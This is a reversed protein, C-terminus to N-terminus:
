QFHSTVVLFFYMRATSTASTRTLRLDTIQKPGQPHALASRLLVVGNIGMFADAILRHAAHYM